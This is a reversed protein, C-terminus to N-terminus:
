RRCHGFPSLRGHGEGLRVLDTMEPCGGVLEHRGGLMCGDVADGSRGHACGADDCGGGEDDRSPSGRRGAPRVWGLAGRGRVRDLVQLLHDCLRDGVGDLV